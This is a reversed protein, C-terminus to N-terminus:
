LAQVVRDDGNVCDYQQDERLPYRALLGTVFFIGAIVKKGPAVQGPPRDASRQDGRIDRGLLDDAHRSGREDHADRDPDVLPGGRDRQYDNCLPQQGDEQLVFDVRHRLEELLAEIM